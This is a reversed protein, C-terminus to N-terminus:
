ESLLEYTELNINLNTGRNAAIALLPIKSKWM